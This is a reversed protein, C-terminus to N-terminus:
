MSDVHIIVSEVIPSSSQSIKLDKSEVPNITKDVNKVDIIPKKHKLLDRVTNAISQFRMAKIPSLTEETKTLNFDNSTM